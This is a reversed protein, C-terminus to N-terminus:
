KHYGFTSNSDFDIDLHYGNKYNHLQVKDVAIEDFSLFVTNLPLANPKNTVLSPPDVPISCYYIPVAEHDKCFVQRAYVTADELSDFRRREWCRAARLHEEMLNANIERPKMKPYPTIVYFLSSPLWKEIPGKDEEFLNIPAVVIYFKM